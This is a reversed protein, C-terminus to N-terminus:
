GILKALWGSREDEMRDEVVRRETQQEALLKQQAMGRQPGGRTTRSFAAEIASRVHQRQKPSLTRRAEDLGAEKRLNGQWISEKPPHSAEVIERTNQLGWKRWTIDAESYNALIHDRSLEAQLLQVTEEPLDLEALTAILDPAKQSALASGLM